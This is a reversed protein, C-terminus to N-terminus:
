PALSEIRKGEVEYWPTEGSGWGDMTKGVRADVRVSERPSFWLSIKVIAGERENRIEPREVTVDFSPFSDVDESRGHGQVPLELSARPEPEVHGTKYGVPETAVLLRVTEDWTNDDHELEVRMPIFYWKLCSVRDYDQEPAGEARSAKLTGHAAGLKLDYTGVISDALDDFTRFRDQEPLAASWQLTNVASWDEVKKADCADYSSPYGEDSGDDTHVPQCAGVMLFLILVSGVKRNM